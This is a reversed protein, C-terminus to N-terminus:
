LHQNTRFALCSVLWGFFLEFNNNKSNNATIRTDNM